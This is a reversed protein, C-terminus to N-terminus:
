EDEAVSLYALKAQDLTLGGGFVYDEQYIEVSEGKMLEAFLNTNDQISTQRIQELQQYADSDDFLSDLADSDNNVDFLQAARDIVAAPVQNTFRNNSFRDYVDGYFYVTTNNPTQDM